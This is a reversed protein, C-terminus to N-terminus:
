RRPSLPLFPPLPIPTTALAEQRELAAAQPETDALIDALGDGLSAAVPGIRSPRNRKEALARVMGRQAWPALKGSHRKLEM